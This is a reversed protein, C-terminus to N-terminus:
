YPNTVVVYSVSSGNYRPEYWDNGCQSYSIGNVMVTSCSPPLTNVISGIVAATVMVAATVGVATAVPNYNNHGYYYGGGGRRDVDIDIDKSNDININKNSNDINVKNTNGVKNNSVKKSNVRTSTRNSKQKVSTRTNGKMAHSGGGRHGGGKKGRADVDAPVMGLFVAVFVASFLVIAAKSMSITM